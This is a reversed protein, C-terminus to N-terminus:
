LSPRPDRHRLRTRYRHGRAELGARLELENYLEGNYTVWVTDDENSMPQAGGDVDIISLRRHGLAVPGDLHVGYGDPGRHALTATM